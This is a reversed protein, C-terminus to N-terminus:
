ARNSTTEKGQPKAVPQRVFFKPKGWRYILIAASLVLSGALYAALVDTAWHEGLFIRSPGVLVILLALITMLLTRIWSRKLLSFVLFLLFGFFSTYYMVHGSPFSYSGLQAFVHVLSSTPRPRHVVIKILTNIVENGIGAFAAMVAEWRLGIYYLLIVVIILTVAGQISYGFWSVAQMLLSFWSAHDTQLGRTISIDIPVYASTSVLIALLSFAVIAALVYFQFLWARYNRVPRPATQSKAAQQAAKSADKAPRSIPEFIETM